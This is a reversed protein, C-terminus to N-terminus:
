AKPESHYSSTIIVRELAYIPYFWLDGGQKTNPRMLASFCFGKPSVTDPEIWADTNPAVNGYPGDKNMQISQPDFWWGDPPAICRRFKVSQGSGDQTVRWARQGNPIDSGNTREYKVKVIPIASIVVSDSKGGINAVIRIDSDQARRIVLDIQNGPKMSKPIKGLEITGGSVEIQPRAAAAGDSIWQIRVNVRDWTSKFADVFVGTRKGSALCAKYSEVAEQSLTQTAISLDAQHSWALAESGMAQEYASRGRENSLEVPVGKIPLGLETISKDSQSRTQEYARARSISAADSLDINTSNRILRYSCDEECYAATSFGMMLAIYLCSNKM